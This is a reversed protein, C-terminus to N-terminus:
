LKTKKRGHLKVSTPELGPLPTRSQLFYASIFTFSLWGRRYIVDIGSFDQINVLEM